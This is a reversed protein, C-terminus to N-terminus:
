ITILYNTLRNKTHGEEEFMFEINIGTRGTSKTHLVCSVQKTLGNYKYHFM